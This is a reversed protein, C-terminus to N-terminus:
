NVLLTNQCFGIQIRYFTNEIVQAKIHKSNFRLFREIYCRELQTMGGRRKTMMMWKDLLRKAPEVEFTRVPFNFENELEYAYYPDVYEFDKVQEDFENEDLEHLPERASHEAGEEKRWEPIVTGRGMRDKIKLDDFDRPKGGSVKGSDDLEEAEAFAQRVFAIWKGIRLPLSQMDQKIAPVPGIYPPPVILDEIQEKLEKDLSSNEAAIQFAKLAKGIPYYKFAVKRWYTYITKRDEELEYNLIGKVLQEPLLEARELEDMSAGREVFNAIRNVIAALTEKDNEKLFEDNAGAFGKVSKLWKEYQPLNTLITKLITIDQIDLNPNTFDEYELPKGNYRVKDRITEKYAQNFNAKDQAGRDSSFEERTEELLKDWEDQEMVEKEGVYFDEVDDLKGEIDIGARLVALIKNKAEETM